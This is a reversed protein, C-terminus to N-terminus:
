EKIYPNTGDLSIKSVARRVRHREITKEAAQEQNLKFETAPVFENSNPDLIICGKYGHEEAYNALQQALPEPVDMDDDRYHVSIRLVGDNDAEAEYSYFQNVERQLNDSSLPDFDIKPGSEVM